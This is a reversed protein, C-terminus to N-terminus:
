HEKGYGAALFIKLLFRIELGMKRRRETSKRVISSSPDVSKEPPGGSTEREEKVGAGDCAERRWRRRKEYLKAGTAEHPVMAHSDSWPLITFASSALEDFDIPKIPFSSAMAHSSNVGICLNRM